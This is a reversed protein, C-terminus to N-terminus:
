IKIYIEIEYIKHDYQELEDLKNINIMDFDQKTFNDKLNGLM